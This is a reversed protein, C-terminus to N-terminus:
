AHVTQRRWLGLGLLGLGLFLLSVPEPVSKLEANFSSTQTGPSHSLTVVQTLSFPGPGAIGGTQSNAFAGPGLPGSNTLPNTTAFLNNGPDWFINYQVTGSTTGGITALPSFSPALFGVDSLMITLTTPVASTSVDVSNLDMHPDIPSGLVPYSLGTSVNLTWAGLSGIWTVAGAAGNSDGAGGDVITVTNLGDTLRMSLASAQGPALLGVLASALVASFLMRKM